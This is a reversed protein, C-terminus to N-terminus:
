GGCMLYGKENGKNVKAEKYAEIGKM